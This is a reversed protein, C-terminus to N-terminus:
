PRYRRRPTQRIIEKARALITLNALGLFDMKLLGIRAIDEMPFQTMVLESRDEGRSLKQLPLYNTLPEEAIVVGAAHTSAHRSLGEVQQASDILKKITDDSDTFRRAARCKRGPGAGADHGGRFAGPAGGPGRRQLEHGPRPRRGPHRGPRGPDRLHYDPRRPRRRVKRFRVQHGRRAPRGRLGHRYGANGQARHEPLARLGPQAALPDLETIGLCRLVISSAASGRVNFLINSRRAFPIIDWVVLFYNAFKTKKIVDLEYALREKVETSTEPYYAALGERCLEELYQDPTKGAPIGIDPLHLRGFELDLHCMEAIKETNAIAEPIDKYLEAMEEPTKFFIADGTKMRKEDQVTTNTGICLMIDHAYADDQNLFHVDNTAVLPIDLEASMPILAQNVQELEPIPQRQVELYFRGKFTDRYWKAAERADDLRNHLILSPVEGALCASLAILGDSHAALIEKDMRPKYYFGELHAQTILKILNDWGTKNQALLVIHFSSKEGATRSQRAGAALYAECGLIPKIGADKAAKYFQITGYLNGHDTIALAGMGLEKARAIVQPIRCMGDLLSYETHLHLHTFM